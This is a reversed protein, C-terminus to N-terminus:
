MSRVPAAFATTKVSPQMASEISTQGSAPLTAAINATHAGFVVRNRLTRHRLTLPALLRSHRTM